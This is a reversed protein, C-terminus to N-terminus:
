ESDRRRQNHFYSAAIGVALSATVLSFYYGFSGATPVDTTLFRLVFYTPSAAMFADRLSHDRKM